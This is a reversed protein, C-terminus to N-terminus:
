HSCSSLPVAKSQLCHHLIQRVNFAGSFNFKNWLLSICIMCICVITHATVHLAPPANLRPARYKFHATISDSFAFRISTEGTAVAQCHVVVGRWTMCLQDRVPISCTFDSICVNFIFWHTTAHHQRVRGIQHQGTSRNAPHNAPFLTMALKM